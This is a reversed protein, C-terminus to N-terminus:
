LSRLPNQQALNKQNTRGETTIQFQKTAQEPFVPGEVGNGSEAAVESLIVDNKSESPIVDNNEHACEEVASGATLLPQSNSIHSTQSICTGRSREPHCSKEKIATAHDPV